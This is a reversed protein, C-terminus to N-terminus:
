LQQAHRIEKIFAILADQVELELYIRDLIIAGNSTTLLISHDDLFEAYVADGLYTKTEPM